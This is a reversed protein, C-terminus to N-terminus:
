GISTLRGVEPHSCPDGLKLDRFRVEMRGGAHIQFAIIGRRLGTPDDLDVSPKGNILTRVRSGIAEIEYDNWEGQRVVAEASRDWLIGRGNEEYLKGWWGQGVDAQYGQM